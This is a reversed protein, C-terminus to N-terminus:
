IGADRHRSSSFCVVRSNFSPTSSTLLTAKLLRFLLFHALHNTAFQTEFGDATEEAAARVSDLSNLGMTLLEIHGPELIDSLAALGKTTDRVELLLKAGTSNLAKVTEIGIGSSCGTILAVKDSLKGM